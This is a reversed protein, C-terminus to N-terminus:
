PKCGHIENGRFTYTPVPAGAHPRDPDHLTTLAHLDVIFVFLDSLEMNAIMTKIMGSYRGIHLQGSPHIGSLIRKTAIKKNTSVTPGFTRASHM